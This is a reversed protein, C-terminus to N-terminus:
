DSSDYNASHRKLIGNEKVEYKVHGIWAQDETIYFRVKMEKLDDITHFEDKVKNEDFQIIQIHKM